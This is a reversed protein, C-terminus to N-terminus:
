PTSKRDPQPDVARARALFIGRRFLPQYVIWFVALWAFLIAALYESDAFLVRLGYLGTFVVAMGALTYPLGARMFVILNNKAEQKWM